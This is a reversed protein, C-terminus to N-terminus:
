RKIGEQSPQALSALLRWPSRLGPRSVTTTPRVAGTRIPVSAAPHEIVNATLWDWGRDVAAKQESAPTQELVSEARRHWYPQGSILILEQLDLL